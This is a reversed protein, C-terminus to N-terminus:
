YSIIISDYKGCNNVQKTYNLIPISVQCVFKDQYDSLSIGTITLFSAGKTSSVSLRENREIEILESSGYM